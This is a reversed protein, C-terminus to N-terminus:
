QSNLKSVIVELQGLCKAESFHLIHLLVDGVAAIVTRDFLLLDVKINHKFVAEGSYWEGANINREVRTVKPRTDHRSM